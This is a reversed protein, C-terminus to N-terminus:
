LPIRTVGPGVAPNALFEQARELKDDPLSLIERETRLHLGRLVLSKTCTCEAQEEGEHRAKETLCTHLGLEWIEVSDWPRTSLWPEAFSGDDVYEYTDFIEPAM